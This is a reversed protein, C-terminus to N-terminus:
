ELQNGNADFQTFKELPKDYRWEGICYSGDAYTERGQGHRLDNSWVGEWSIGSEKYTMKGKGHRTNQEEFQDVPGEYVDGNKYQCIGTMRGDSFAGELIDGQSNIQKGQGSPIMKEFQGEYSNGESSIMMAKVPKFSADFQGIFQRWEKNEEGIILRQITPINRDITAEYLFINHSKELIFIGKGHKQGDHM